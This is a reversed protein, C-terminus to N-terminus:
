LPPQYLARRQMMIMKCVDAVHSEKKRKEGIKVAEVLEQPSMSAHGCSGLLTSM